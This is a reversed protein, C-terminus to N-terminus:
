EQVMVANAASARKGASRHAKRKHAKKKHTTKKAKRRTSKRAKSKHAKKHSKTKRATKKHAAKKRRKVMNNGGNRLPHSIRRIRRQCGRRPSNGLNSLAKADSRDRSIGCELENDKCVRIYM